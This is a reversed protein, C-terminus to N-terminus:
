LMSRCSPMTSCKHLAKLFYYDGYVLGADVGGQGPYNSTGHKLIAGFSPSSGPEALYKNSALSRLTNIAACLYKSGCSTSLSANRAAPTAAGLAEAIHLLGLAAVAASSSDRPGDSEPDYPANFDWLPIYEQADPQTMMLDLWKDAVKQAAVLFEPDGTHCM